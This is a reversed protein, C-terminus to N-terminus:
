GYGWAGKARWKAAERDSKARWRKDSWKSWEVIGWLILAAGGVYGVLITATSPPSKASKKANAEETALAAWEERTMTAGPEVAGTESSRSVIPAFTRTQYALLPSM